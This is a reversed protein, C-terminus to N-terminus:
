QVSDLWARPDAATCLSGGSVVWDAGHAACSRALAPTVGGDVGLEGRTATASAAPGPQTGSRLAALRALTDPRFAAGARGPTISMLLVVTGAPLGAPLAAPTHPSLAIGPTAGLAVVLDLAARWGTAEVHVIVRECVAAWAAVQEAPETVMLHAEGPLGTRATIAAAEDPTFGGPAAFDGDSVDWHWRRLGAAALRDALVPREAPPVSWLSAAVLTM